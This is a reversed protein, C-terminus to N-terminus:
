GSSGVAAIRIQSAFMAVIHGIYSAGNVVIVQPARADAAIGPVPGIIAMSSELVKASISGPGLHGWKDAGIRISDAGM